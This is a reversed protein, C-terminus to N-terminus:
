VEGLYKQSLFKFLEEATHFEKSFSGDAAVFNIGADFDNLDNEIRGVPQGKILVNDGDLQIPSDDGGFELLTRKFENFMEMRELLKNEGAHIAKAKANCYQSFASRAADTDGAVLKNIFEAILEPNKM